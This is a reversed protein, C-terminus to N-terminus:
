DAKRWRFLVSGLTLFLVSMAALVIVHYRIDYISAGDNMIKRVGATLHTLPFFEAANKVWPRAGELSFWVESLLMMPWSLLNLAGGAFEESSSRSAIILALSIMSFGGLAFILILSLYSGKNEFGYLLACGTYVISTTIFLVFMRSIIHATLFEFPILPTVSLRKLVGHRRDRVVAYGVGFLASFMMNMGLVGPFLWEIYPIERGEVTGSIFSEKVSNYNGAQLIKEALYSKPSSESKWYVGHEPDILMDIRHHGLKDKGSKISEMPLFEIFKSERFNKYQASIERKISNGDGIIGIKYETRENQNFILSFGIIIFFPFIINWGFGSKDRYFERNRSLFIIWIRKLM